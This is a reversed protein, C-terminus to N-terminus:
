DTWEYYGVSKYILKEGDACRVTCVFEGSRTSFVPAYINTKLEEFHSSSPHHYDGSWGVTKQGVVAKDCKKFQQATGAFEVTFEGASESFLYRGLTVERATGFVIRELSPCRAFAEEDIIVVHPLIVERLSPCNYFARKMIRYVMGRAIVRELLPMQAFVGEEVWVVSDPLMVTHIRDRDTIHEKKIFQTGDPIQLVGNAANQAASDEMGHTANEKEM